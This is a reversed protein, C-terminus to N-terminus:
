GVRAMEQILPYSKLERGLRALVLRHTITELEERSGNPIKLRDSQRIDLTFLKRLYNLTGTQIRIEVPETHTCRSCIIGQRHYSFGVWTGNSDQSCVICEKLRPKYGALALTRLEFLRCLIELDDRRRVEQLTNALLHFLEPEPHGEPAMAEALEIFYIATYFKLSDERVSQFSQIIDCQNLRYLAQTEKGFYIMSLHTMPELSAGFRSKIRRAAKAVCKVKGYNLSLFTVLKDTESLNFSRLVIAPSKYLPM